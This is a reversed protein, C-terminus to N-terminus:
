WRYVVLRPRVPIPENRIIPKIPKIMADTTL